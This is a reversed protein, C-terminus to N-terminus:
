NKKGSHIVISGGGLVTTNVVVDGDDGIVDDAGYQNDYVVIEQGGDEYWIKIRFRDDEHSDNDNVDADFGVLMFKYESGNPAVAENVLGSGKYQAKSGAIVLWDYSTSEFEFDAAKFKFTTDGTPISAGKKYKSVFGFNAKGTLSLDARYAGAPSDIWGGGTVFGAAPDYVVVYEFDAMFDGGVYLTVTYVGAELYSHTETAGASTSQTGDGWDWTISATSAGIDTSATITENVTVVPNPDIAAPDGTLIDIGVVTYDVSTSATNGVDDTAEVLLTHIGRVTTDIQDGSLVPSGGVSGLCGGQTVGSGSDTCGFEYFHGSSGEGIVQLDEPEIIFPIPDTSDILIVLSATDGGGVVSVSNYGEGAVVFTGSGVITSPTGGTVTYTVGATGSLTVTVSSTYWPDV